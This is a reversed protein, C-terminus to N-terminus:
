AAHGRGEDGRTRAEPLPHRPLQRDRPDRNLRVDEQDFVEFEVRLAARGQRDARVAGPFRQLFARFDADDPSALRISRVEGVRRGGISVKVGEELTKVDPFFSVCTTGSEKFWGPTPIGGTKFAFLAFVAVALLIFLGSVIESRRYDAM